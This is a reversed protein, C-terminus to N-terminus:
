GKLGTTSIGQVIFRNFVVFLVFVPVLSLTSMAFLPGYDTQSTSDIFSRLALPVTFSPPRSLYLLPEFFDNWKWYAAIVTTSIFAPKTLPLIIHWFVGYSSCGDIIASEDLERPITRIFQVNLFIFFASGAFWAPVFLPLYTNIWQLKQFLVYRPIVLVEAPLLMTVLILAFLISRGRFRLRAFGYAVVLCSLATGLTALTTVVLSNWFFTGFSLNGFGKWGVVYNLWQFQEPWLSYNDVALIEANTKLSGLFLWLLPYLLVFCFLLVFVHYFGTRWARGLSPHNM